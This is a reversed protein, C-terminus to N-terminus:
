AAAAAAFALLGLWVGLAISGLTIALSLAWDAATPEVTQAPDDRGFAYFTRRAGERETFRVDRANTRGLLLRRPGARLEFILPALGMIVFLTGCLIGVFVAGYQIEWFFQIGLGVFLVPWGWVVVPAAFGRQFALAVGAAIFLGFIALPMLLIANTCEVAIVYPGGSACFGGISGLAGAALYLYTFSFAFILWALIAGPIRWVPDAFRTM